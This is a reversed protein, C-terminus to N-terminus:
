KAGTVSVGDALAVGIPVHLDQAPLEIDGADAKRGMRQPMRKGTFVKPPTAVQFEKSPNKAM